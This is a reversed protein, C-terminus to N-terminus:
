KMWSWGPAGADEEIRRLDTETNAWSIMKPWYKGQLVANALNTFQPRLARSLNQVAPHNEWGHAEPPYQGPCAEALQVLRKAMDESTANM